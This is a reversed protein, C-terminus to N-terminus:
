PTNQQIYKQKLLKSCCETEQINGFQWKRSICGKVNQCSEKESQAPFINCVLRWHPDAPLESQEQHTLIKSKINILGNLKVQNTFNGAEDYLKYICFVHM